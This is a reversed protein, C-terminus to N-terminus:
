ADRVIFGLCELEALARRVEDARPLEGEDTFIAVLEVEDRPGDEIAELLAGAAENLLHTQWSVPNLLVAEGDWEFREAPTQTALRWRIPQAPGCPFDPM